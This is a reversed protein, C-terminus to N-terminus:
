STCAMKELAAKQDLEELLSIVKMFTKDKRGVRVFLKDARYDNPAWYEMLVPCVENGKWFTHPPQSLGHEVLHPFYKGLEFALGNEGKLPFFSKNLFIVIKM